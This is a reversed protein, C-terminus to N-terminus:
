DLLMTIILSLASGVFLGTWFRPRVSGESRPFEVHEITEDEGNFLLVGSVPYYLAYELLQRRTDRRAPAAGAGTKVEVVWRRGGRSVLYDARMRVERPTDDITLTYRAEPHRKLVTYGARMLANAAAAEREHGWEAARRAHEYPDHRRTLARRILAVLGFFVACVAVLIWIQDM